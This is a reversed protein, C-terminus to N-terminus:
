TTNIEENIKKFFIKAVNKENSIINLRSEKQSKLQGSLILKGFDVNQIYIEKWTSNKPYKM